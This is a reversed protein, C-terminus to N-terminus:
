ALSDDKAGSADGPRIRFLVTPDDEQMTQPMSRDPHLDANQIRRRAQRSQSSQHSRWARNALSNRQTQELRMLLVISLNYLLLIIVLGLIAYERPQIDLQRHFCFLDGWRHLFKELQKTGLVQSLPQWYFDERFIRPMDPVLAWVGGLTMVAPIWRWGRRLISCAVGAAAGSCGMGVAFHMTSWALIIEGSGERVLGFHIPLYIFAEIENRGNKSM